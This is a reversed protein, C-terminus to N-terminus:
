LPIIDDAGASMSLIPGPYSAEITMKRLPLHLIVAPVGERERDRVTSPNM